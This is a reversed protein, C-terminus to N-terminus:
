WQITEIGNDKLYDNTENFIDLNPDVHTIHPNELILHKATDIYKKFHENGSQLFIFVINEKEKNITKIVERTFNKWYTEHNQGYLTTLTSNLMLVGENAWIKMTEDFWLTTDSYVTDNVCDKISETFSPTTGSNKIVGFALGNSKPNQYPQNGIIVVKLTRYECLNFAEFIDSKVPYVSQYVRYVEDIFFALNKMYDSALLGTLLYCWDGLLEKFDNKVERDKYSHAIYM